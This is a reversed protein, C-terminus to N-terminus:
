GSKMEGGENGHHDELWSELQVENWTDSRVWRGIPAALAAVLLLL